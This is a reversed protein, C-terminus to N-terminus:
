ARMVGRRRRVLFFSLVVRARARGGVVVVVGVGVVFISAAV